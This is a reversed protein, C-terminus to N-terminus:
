QIVEDARALLASPITIGLAKATKLNILLEYKTPQEVAMDAPKAGKLVKDVLEAARRFVAPLNLGYSMLGGAEVHERAGFMTPMRNKLALDAIHKAHRIYTPSEALYLADARRDVMAAFENGWNSPDKVWLVQLEVGLAKAAEEADRVWIMTAEIPASGPAVALRSMRTIADKLLQLRKAIIASDSAFMMGTVNGGPRALSAVVGERVPDLSSAMVIPITSTAKKAALAASSARTVIIDPNLRVLEAALNPVRDPRGEAFRSEVFLNVGEVYGLERLRQWLADAPDPTGRTPTSGGSLFGIRWVKTSQGITRRSAVAASAGVMAIFRRRDIM